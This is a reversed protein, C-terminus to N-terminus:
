IYRNSLYSIYCTYIFIDAFSLVLLNTPIFALCANNFQPNKPLMSPGETVDEGLWCTFLLLWPEWEGEGTVIICGSGGGGGDCELETVEDGDM